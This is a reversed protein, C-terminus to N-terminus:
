LDNTVIDRRIQFQVAGNAVLFTDGRNEVLKVQTGPAFGTVGTSTTLSVPKILYLTGDPALRHRESPIPSTIPMKGSTAAPSRSCSAILAAVVCPPILSVFVKIEM